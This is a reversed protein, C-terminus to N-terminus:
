VLGCLKSEPFLKFVHTVNIQIVSSCLIWMFDLSSPDSNQIEIRAPDIINVPLFFNYEHFMVYQVWNQPSRWILIQNAEIMTGTSDKIKNKKSEFKNIKLKEDM